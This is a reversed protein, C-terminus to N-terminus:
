SRCDNEEVMKGNEYSKKLTQKSHFFQNNM